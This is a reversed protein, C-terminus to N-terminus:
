EEGGSIADQKYDIIKYTLLVTLILGIVICIEAYFLILLKVIINNTKIILLATGNIFSDTFIGVWFILFCYLARKDWIKYQKLNM